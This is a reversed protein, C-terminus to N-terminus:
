PAPTLLASAEHGPALYWLRPTLAGRLQGLDLASPAKAPTRVGFLMDTLTKPKFYHVARPRGEIQAAKGAALIADNLTGIHDILQYEKARPATFTGGDARYRTYPKTPK